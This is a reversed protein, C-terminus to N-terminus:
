FSVSARRSLEGMSFSYEEPARSNTGKSKVLVGDDVADNLHRRATSVSLGTTRGYEKATTPGKLHGLVHATGAKVLSSPDQAWVKSGLHSKLYAGHITEQQAGRNKGGREADTSISLWEERLGDRSQYKKDPQLSLVVDARGEFAGSGRPVLRSANESFRNPHHTILVTTRGLAEEMKNLTQSVLAAKDEDPLGSTAAWTDIVCLEVGLETVFENLKSLAVPSNLNVGTAFHVSEAVEEIPKGYYDCWASIREYFGHIGEGLVILTKAPKTKKGMWTMGFIMSLVMGIYAFTKGMSRKAVLVVIGDSQPVFTDVLYDQKLERLENLSVLTVERSGEAVLLSDAALEVKKQRLRKQVDVIFSEDDDALARASDFAGFKRIAGRLCAEWDQEWEPENWPSVLWLEKLALLAEPVGHHGEAGLRVLELQRNRMVDHSFESRPFRDMAKEVKEDPQGHPLREFWERDSGSFTSTAANRSPVLLWDPAPALEDLKKPVQESWAIFYSNGARRDVGRLITGNPLAVDADPGVDSGDPKLYFHHSGGRPTIVSFTPEPVVGNEELEFQGDIGFEPDNDVDLVVLTNKCWVGVLHNPNMTWYRIVEDRDTFSDYFGRRTRPSKRAHLKDGVWTDEEYCPFVGLGLDFWALAITLNSM